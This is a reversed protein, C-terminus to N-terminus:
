SRDWNNRQGRSASATAPICPYKLRKAADLLKSEEPEWENELALEGTWALIRKREVEAQERPMNEMELFARGITM